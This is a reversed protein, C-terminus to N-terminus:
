TTRVRPNLVAYAIDIILNVVVVLATVLVVIGQVVPLDHQLSARVSLSGLGPLAFVSEVLVTGGVIGVALLGLITVVRISANKMAHRLYISWPRVGNAWAMRIYETSLVDLFSERTQKTVAAIGGLSLAAVPLVLSRAWEASSTALPVYGTAPLLRLNVAFLLILMAGVWFSPLAWGLLAFVDVIRALPGRSIASVLGLGIGVVVSVLLSGVALSLTVSSRDFIAKSVSEGTYLSTGLNGHLAGQLWHWYQVHLPQGLGLLARMREYAEPTANPGLIGAVPDGPAFSVLVFTLASVVVLLPVAMLLRRLILGVLPSRLASMM